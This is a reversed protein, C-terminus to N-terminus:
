LPCSRRGGHECAEIASSPRYAGGGAVRGLAALHKRRVFNAADLVHHVAPTMRSDVGFTDILARKPNEPVVPTAM